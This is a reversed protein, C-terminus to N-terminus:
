NASRAVFAKLNTFNEDGFNREVLGNNGRVQVKIRRANALKQLQLKSIDYLATERVFDKRYTRRRNLSGNGEFKMTEGDATITLTQGPPIDLYGAESPAMYFVELYFDSSQATRYDRFMNLYVVERPSGEAALLNESVDTRRGTIPDYSTATAPPKTACGAVLALVACFFLLSKM